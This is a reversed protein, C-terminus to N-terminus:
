RKQSEKKFRTVITIKNNPVIYINGKADELVTTRLSLEKVMGKKGGIEVSDGINFQNEFLVFFGSIYDKVLTQSAFGVGLGLFGAGAIIPTSDVGIESLLILITAAGIAFSALNSFVSIITEARKKEADEDLLALNVNSIYNSLVNRLAKTLIKRILYAGILLLIIRLFKGTVFPLGITKPLPQSTHIEVWGAAIGVTLGFFILGLIVIVVRNLHTRKLM